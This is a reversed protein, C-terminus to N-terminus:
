GASPFFSPGGPIGWHMGVYVVPKINETKHGIHSGQTAFNFNVIEDMFPTKFGM